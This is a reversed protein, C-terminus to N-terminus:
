AYGILPFRFSEQISPRMQRQDGTVQRIFQPIKNNVHCPRGKRALLAEPEWQDTVRGRRFRLDDYAEEINTHEREWGREYELMAERHIEPWKSKDVYDDDDARIGEDDTAEADAQQIVEARPARAVRKRPAAAKPLPKKAKAM